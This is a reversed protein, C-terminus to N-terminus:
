QRDKFSSILIVDKNINGRAIALQKGDRSWAFRFVRDSKFDILQRTLYDNQSIEHGTGVDFHTRFHTRVL